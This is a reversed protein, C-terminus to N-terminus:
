GEQGFSRQPLAHALYGQTIADSLAPLDRDLEALHAKLKPRGEDAVSECLAEVDCLRARTLMGLAIREEPTRLPDEVARPLLRVHEHTVALQFAISRPNSEDTLVLDLVPAAQMVDQYRRRYTIGNDLTDLLASLLSPEEPLPDGVVASILTSTNRARELRRGLDMFRFGFTRSLNEMELGAFTGCTLVVRDLADLMESAGGNRVGPLARRQDELQSLVHWTDRSIRDRVVSAARHAGSLSSLLAYSSDVTCLQRLLEREVDDVASTESPPRSPSPLAHQLRFAASLAHIVNPEGSRTDDLLRSVIVRALRATSEAREVYRGLWFLNDAVRSPLDNGSRSVSLREGQRGLLSFNTVPREALVWTDKSGAGRQMSVITDGKAPAVRTLGGPMTQYGPGDGLAYCRLAIRHPEFAQGNWVPASSFQVREQVVWEAPHATMSALLEAKQASSLAAGYLPERQAGRSHVAFAPKVVLEDLKDRVYDLAGPDGCWKAPASPLALDEGLLHRCLAPLYPLIAACEVVGSGLANAVTVNGARVASVLGAVGLASDPRLALPDCFSDDLRRVIVDVRSLGSLTKLYVVRNRVTLDGGEVLTLGLYRALYAHEFYTENYPGPTLLVAHPREVGRPSLRHVVDLLSRFFPALREVRCERYLGAFARSLVVRNELAYGMGSPAQTRDGLAWFNGNADRALDAAYLHIYRAGRPLSGQCARLFAPNRFVLEPPLVRQRLLSRSGYIDDLVLNLLYARQALGRELKQWEQASVLLPIPDLQWPRDMGRSDDYVNYTVGNDRLQRQAADWGRTVDNPGLGALAQAFRSWHPRLAGDAAMLEDYGSTSAVYGALAAHAPEPLQPMSLSEPPPVSM